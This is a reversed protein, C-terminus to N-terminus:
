DNSKDDVISEVLSDIVASVVKSFGGVVTIKEVDAAVELRISTKVVDTPAFM